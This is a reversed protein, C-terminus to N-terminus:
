NVLDNQLLLLDGHRLILPFDEQAERLNKYRRIQETPFGRESLGTLIYDANEGCLLVIDASTALARGIKENVSASEHGLEVIGQALVLRRGEYTKLLDLASMVGEINANYGDDIVTVGNATEVLQLRHPVAVLGAIIDCIESFAIGLELATATALLINLVNHRALLRTKVTAREGFAVLDFTTGRATVAVNEARVQAFRDFGAYTVPAGSAMNKTYQNDMNLTVSLRAHRALEGKETAINDLSGFTELHQGTVGTVIAYDPRVLRCLEKIDGAYRAGMECIFVEADKPLDKLTLALGMPTNRNGETAVVKYKASLMSRLIEKVSTKGFSGTIGIKILSRGHLKKAEREIFRRNRAEELPNLIIVSLAFIFPSAGLIAVAWVAGGAGVAGSTGLFFGLCLSLAIAGLIFIGFLLFQRKVRATLKLPVKLKQIRTASIAVSFGGGVIALVAGAVDGVAFCVLFLLAVLFAPAYLRADAVQEALRYKALQFSRALLWAWGASGGACFLFALVTLFIM